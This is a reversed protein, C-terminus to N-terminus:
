PKARCVNEQTAPEGRGSGEPTQSRVDADRWVETAGAGRNWNYFTAEIIGHERIIQAVTAGTQQQQIIAVIARAV